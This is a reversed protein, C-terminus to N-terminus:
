ASGNNTKSRRRRQFALFETEFLEHVQVRGLKGEEEKNKKEQEAQLQAEDIVATQPFLKSLLQPSALPSEPTKKATILNENSKEM